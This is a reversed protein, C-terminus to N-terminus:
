LHFTREAGLGDLIFGDNAPMARAVQPHDAGHQEFDVVDNRLEVGQSLIKIADIRRVLTIAIRQSIEDGVGNKIYQDGRKQEDDGM